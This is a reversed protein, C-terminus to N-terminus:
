IVQLEVRIRSKPVLFAKNTAEHQCLQVKVGTAAGGQLHPGSPFKRNKVQKLRRLMVRGNSLGLM